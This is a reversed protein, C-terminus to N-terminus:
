RLLDDGVPRSRAQALKKDALQQYLAEYSTAVVDVSYQKAAELGSQSLRRRRDADGLLSILERGLRAPECLVGLAGGRLVERAGDNPTTIVPLGSAMAEVYPVGFGEYSSTSCLLWHSRYLQGLTAMDIDTVCSVGPRDVRDRSVITLRAEPLKRRVEDFAALLLDGRKRGQLTGAVFLVSPYTTRDGGPAFVKPDVSCPITSRVLPLCRRTIDSIAVCGPNLSSVWELGYYCLQSIRRRWRTATWAEMLASGYFTRVRPRRGFLWDDGHAHIADFSSLDLTSFRRGLGFLRAARGAGAKVRECRYPRVLEPADVAFVTVDHGRTTLTRALLDVQYGVGGSNLAPPLSVQLM